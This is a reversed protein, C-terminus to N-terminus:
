ENEPCRKGTSGTLSDASRVSKPFPIPSARGTTWCWNMPSRASATARESLMTDGIVAREKVTTKGINWNM